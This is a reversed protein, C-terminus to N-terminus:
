GTLNKLYDMDGRSVKTRIVSGYGHVVIGEINGNTACGEKAVKIFVDCVCRWLGRIGLRCKGATIQIAGLSRGHIAIPVQPNAIRIM